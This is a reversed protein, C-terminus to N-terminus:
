SRHWINDYVTKLDLWLTCLIIQSIFENGSPVFELEPDYCYAVVDDIGSNYCDCETVNPCINSQALDPNNWESQEVDKDRDIGDKDHYHQSFTHVEAHIAITVLLLSLLYTIITNRDM